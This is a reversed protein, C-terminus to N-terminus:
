DLSGFVRKMLRTSRASSITRIRAEEQAMLLFLGDISKETVYDALDPDVDFVLPLANYRKVIEGYYRTASTEDLAAVVIPRFQDQLEDYSEDILYRTAADQEGELIDFADDISMSTIARIFIPKARVAALEAARNMQQEARDIQAGFGLNRLTNELKDADEPLAIRIQPNGLYGNVRSASAASTAIGRSLADKLAQSVEAESLPLLGSDQLEKGSCSLLALLALSLVALKM